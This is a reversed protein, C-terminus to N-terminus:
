SAEEMLRSVLTPAHVGLQALLHDFTMAPTRYRTAQKRLIAAVRAPQTAAFEALFADPSRAALNHPELAPPQFDRLNATVIVTAGIEVAVALVHRDKPHNTMALIRHEYGTVLAGPFVENM